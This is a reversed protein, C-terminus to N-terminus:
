SLIKLGIFFQTSINRNNKKPSPSNKLNHSTCIRYKIAVVIKKFYSAQFELRSENGTNIVSEKNLNVEM